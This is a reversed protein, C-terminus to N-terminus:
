SNLQEVTQVAELFDSKDMPKTVLPADTESELFEIQEDHPNGTIYILRNLLEPRHEQLWLVLDRGELQGPFVLDLVILDPDSITGQTLDDIAQLPSEEFHGEVGWRQIFQQFLDRINKEDEVVLISQYDPPLQNNTQERSTKTELSDERESVPLRIDFQAGGLEESDHVTIEGGLGTIIGQTIPLGLGTGDSDGKTTHFPEFIQDRQSEPIGYGSDEIRILIQQDDIPKTTVKIVREGEDKNKLEQEANSLLNIFVEELQTQNAHITPLEPDCDTAIEISSIDLNRRILKVSTQLIENLDLDEAKSDGPRVFNLLNDIIDKCRTANEEIIELESKVPEAQKDELLLNVFGIVGTLPNNIEHALGSIMEGLTRIRESQRIQDRAGVLNTFTPLLCVYSVTGNREERTVTLKLKEKQGTENSYTLSANHPDEENPAKKSLAKRLAEAGSFVSDLPESEMQERSISIERLFADNVFQVNFQDDLVLLGTPLESLLWDSDITDLRPAEPSKPELGLWRHITEPMTFKLSVVLIIAFFALIAVGISEM